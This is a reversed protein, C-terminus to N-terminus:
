ATAGRNRFERANWVVDRGGVQPLRLDPDKSQVLWLMRNGFLAALRSQREVIDLLVHAAQEEVAVFADFGRVVVVLGLLDPNLGYAGEAVNSLCDNLADLNRGYYDPFSLASALADHMAAQTSWTSADLDVVQYGEARLATVTESLVSDSHFLTSAGNLLLSFGLDAGWASEPDFSPMPAM